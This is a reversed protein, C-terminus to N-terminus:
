CLASLSCDFSDDGQEDADDEDKEDRRFYSVATREEAGEAAAAPAVEGLAFGVDCCLADEEVVGAFCGAVELDCALIDELGGALGPDDL